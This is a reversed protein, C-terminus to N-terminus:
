ERVAKRVDDRSNVLHSYNPTGRDYLPNGLPRDSHGGLISIPM